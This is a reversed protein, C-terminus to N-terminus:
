IIRHCVQKHPTWRESDVAYRASFTIDYKDLVQPTSITIPILSEAETPSPLHPSIHCQGDSLSFLLWLLLLYVSILMDCWVNSMFVAASSSDQRGAQQWQTVPAWDTSAACMEVGRNEETSCNYGWITLFRHPAAHLLSEKVPAIIISQHWDM